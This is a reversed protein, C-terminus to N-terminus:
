LNELPESTIVGTKVNAVVTAAIICFSKIGTKMSTLFVVKQISSFLISSIIDFFVLAIQIGFKIPFIGFQIIIFYIAYFYLKNIISSEASANPDFILFLDVPKYESILM